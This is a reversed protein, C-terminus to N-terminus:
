VGPNWTPAGQGPQAVSNAQMVEAVTVTVPPLGWGVKWPFSLDVYYGPASISAGPYGWPAADGVDQPTYVTFTQLTVPITTWPTGQLTQQLDQQFALAAGTAPGTSKTWQTGQAADLTVASDGVQQLAIQAYRSMSARAVQVSHLATFYGTLGITLLSTITLMVYTPM